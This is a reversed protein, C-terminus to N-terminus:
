VRGRCVWRVRWGYLFLDWFMQVSVFTGLDEFCRLKVCRVRVHRYVHVYMVPNQGQVAGDGGGCYSESGTDM